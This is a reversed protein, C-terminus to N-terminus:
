ESMSGNVALWICGELRNRTWQSIQGDFGHRGLESVLIAHPETDFAKCLNLYIVDTARGKGVLAIIGHYFAVLNILGSKGKFFGHQSEGIVEKSGLPKAYKRPPDM